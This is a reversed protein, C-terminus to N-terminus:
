RELAQRITTDANVLHDHIAQELTDLPRIRALLELALGCAELEGAVTTMAQEHRAITQQDDYRLDDALARTDHDITRVCSPTTDTVVTLWADISQSAPV